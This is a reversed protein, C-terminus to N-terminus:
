SKIREFLKAPRHGEKEDSYIDTERIKSSMSRRFNNPIVTKNFVAEYVQLLDSLKFQKPVLNFILDDFVAKEQLAIYGKLLIEAHDFALSSDIIVYGKDTKEADINLVTRSEIGTLTVHITNTEDSIYDFYFWEASQVDSGELSSLEQPSILGYYATSIIWGRPDRDPKSFVGISDLYNVTVGTEEILERIAAQETTENSRLFGGPLSYKDKFPEEGRKVLLISLSKKALHRFNEKEKAHASFMVIDAAVSPREYNEISYEKMLREGKNRM